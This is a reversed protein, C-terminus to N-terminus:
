ENLLKLATKLDHRPQKCTFNTCVFYSPKDNIVMYSDIWPAINEVLNNDNIDKVITIFNPYYEKKIKKLISKYDHKNKDIVIAILNEDRKKMDIFLKIVADSLIPFPFRSVFTGSKFASM